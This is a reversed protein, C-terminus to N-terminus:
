LLKGTNKCAILICQMLYVVTTSSM